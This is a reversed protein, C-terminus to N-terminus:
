KRLGNKRIHELKHDVDFRDKNALRLSHWDEWEKERERWALCELALHEIQKPVSRREAKASITIAEEEILNFQVRHGEAWGNEKVKPM